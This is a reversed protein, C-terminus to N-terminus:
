GLDLDIYYGTSTNIDQDWCRFTIFSCGECRGQVSCQLNESCEGYSYTFMQWDRSRVFLIRLVESFFNLPVTFKVLSTISRM